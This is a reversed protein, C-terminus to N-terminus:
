CPSEMAAYRTRMELASSLLLQGIVQPNGALSAISNAIAITTQTPQTSLALVLQAIAIAQATIGQIVGQAYGPASFKGTPDSSTIPNDNAYSYSNLSQPDIINQESSWFV